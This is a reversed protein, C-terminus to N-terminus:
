LPDILVGLEALGRLVDGEGEPRVAACLSPILHVDFGEELGSRCTAAVCYDTAIGVVDIRHIDYARLYEALTRGDSPNRGEFGSYAAASAGKEFYGSILHLASDLNPHLEAGNTGAVCHAPWSDVYDPSPSFHAGPDVHHDLTAVVLAEDNEKSQLWAAIAGVVASGGGVALSGGECFDNQCDVVVVARRLSSTPTAIDSM